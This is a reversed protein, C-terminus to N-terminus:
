FIIIIVLNEEVYFKGINCINTFVSFLLFIIYNKLKALM